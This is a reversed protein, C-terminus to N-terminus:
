KQGKTIFCRGYQGEPVPRKTFLCCRNDQGVEIYLKYKNDEEVELRIGHTQCIYITKM